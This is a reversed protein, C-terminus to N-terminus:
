NCKQVTLTVDCADKDVSKGSATKFKASKKEKAPIVITKKQLSSGGEEDVVVVSVHVTVMYNNYNQCDVTLFSSGSSSSVTPEVNGTLECMGYQAFSASNLGLIAIAILLIKKM